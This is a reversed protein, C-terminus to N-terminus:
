ARKGAHEVFVYTWISDDLTWLQSMQPLCAFMRLSLTALLASCVDNGFESTMFDVYSLEQQSPPNLRIFSTLLDPRKRHLALLGDVHYQAREYVDADYAGDAAGKISNIKLCFHHLHRSHASLDRHHVGAKVSAWPYSM